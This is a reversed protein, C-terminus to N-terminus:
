WSKLREAEVAIVTNIEQQVSQDHGALQRRLQQLSDISEPDPKGETEIQGLIDDLLHTADDLLTWAQKQEPTNSEDQEQTISADSVTDIEDQLLAKFNSNVKGDKSARSSPPRGINSHRIKMTKEQRRM